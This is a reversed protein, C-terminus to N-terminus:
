AYMVLVFATNSIQIACYGEVAVRYQKLSLRIHGFVGSTIVAFDRPRKIFLVRSFQASVLSNIKSRPKSHNSHSTDFVVAYKIPM